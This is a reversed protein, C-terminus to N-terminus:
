DLCENPLFQVLYMSPSQNMKPEIVSRLDKPLFLGFEKSVTMINAIVFLVTKLCLCFINNMQSLDGETSSVLTLFVSSKFRSYSVFM